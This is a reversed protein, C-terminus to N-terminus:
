SEEAHSRVGGTMHDLLDLMEVARETSLRGSKMALHVTETVVAAYLPLLHDAHQSLAELHRQLTGVDGRVVPGTLAVEPGAALANEVSQRTLPGLAEAAGQRDSTAREWLDAALALMAIAHNGAMVAAAHYLAKHDTAVEVAQALLDDALHKGALVAEPAGEVGITIGRFREKGETGTFTQLPHFSGTLAGKRELADLVRHDYVGSTHLVLAGDPIGAASLAAAVEAVADDSVVLFTLDAKPLADQGITLYLVHDAKVGTHRAADASRGAWAVCRFGHEILARGLARALAGTGVMTFSDLM